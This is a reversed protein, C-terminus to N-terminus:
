KEALNRLHTLLFDHYYQGSTEESEKPHLLDRDEAVSLLASSSRPPCSVTFYWVRLERIRTKSGNNIEHYRIFGAGPTGTFTSSWRLKDLAQTGQEQAQVLKGAM